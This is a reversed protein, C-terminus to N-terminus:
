ILSIIWSFKGLGFYKGNQFRKHLDLVIPLFLSVYFGTIM